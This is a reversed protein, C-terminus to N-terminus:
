LILAEFTMHSRTRQALMLDAGDSLVQSVDAAFKYGRGPVTVIYRHDSAREGLAKRLMSVHQTLNNEEVCTDPWLAKMLQDKQLVEGSHEVLVLLTDFVKSTIPVSEDDRLLLRKVANVRFPGFVYIRETQQSMMPKAGEPTHDQSPKTITGKFRDQDPMALFEQIFQYVFPAM